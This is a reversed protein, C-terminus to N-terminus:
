PIEKHRLSDNKSLEKLVATKVGFDEDNSLKVLAEKSASENFRGLALVSYYRISHDYKPNTMEIIYPLAKTDGLIGLAEISNIVVGNSPDGLAHVLSDFSRKGPFWKIAESASVRIHENSSLLYDCLPDHLDIGRKRYEMMRQLFLFESHGYQDGAYLICYLSPSSRIVTDPFYFILVGIFIISLSFISVIIAAM